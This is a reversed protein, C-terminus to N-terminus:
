WGHKRREVRSSRNQPDEHIPPWRWREGDRILSFAASGIKERVKEVWDAHRRATVFMAFEAEWALPVYVFDLKEVFEAVRNIFTEYTYDYYDQRMYDEKAIAELRTLVSPATRTNIILPANETGCFYWNYLREQNGAVEWFVFDKEGGENPPLYPTGDPRFYPKTGGFLGLKCGVVEAILRLRGVSPIFICHPFGALPPDFRGFAVKVCIDEPSLRKYEEATTNQFLDSMDADGM